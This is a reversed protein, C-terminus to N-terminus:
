AIASCVRASRTTTSRTPKRILRDALLEEKGVLGDLEVQVLDIALEADGVAGLRRGDRV